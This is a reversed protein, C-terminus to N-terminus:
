EVDPAAGTNLIAELVRTLDDGLSLLTSNAIGRATQGCGWFM